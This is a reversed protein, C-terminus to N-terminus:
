SEENCLEEGGDALAETVLSRPRAVADQWLTLLQEPTDEAASHRDWDPDSDWDVTDWPPAPDRGVLRRSCLLDEVYSLHKHM